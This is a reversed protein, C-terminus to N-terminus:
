KKNYFALLKEMESKVKAPQTTKSDGVTNPRSKYEGVKFWEKRSDSTNKKLIKHCEKIIDESLECIAHDLIFDFCQFHNVTEM